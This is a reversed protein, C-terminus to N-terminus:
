VRTKSRTPLRPLRSQWKRRDPKTAPNGQEADSAMKGLQEALSLPNNQALAQQMKQANQAGAVSTKANAGAKSDAGPPPANLGVKGDKDNQKPTAQANALAQALDKGAGPLSKPVGTQAALSMQAQKMAATLKAVKMLAKQKTMSSKQLQKGLAAIQLAAKKAEPLNKKGAEKDLAKALRVLREGQAQVAKHEARTQASQFLPLTPLFWLLFAAAFVGLSAPVPRPLPRLSVVSKVDASAAATQADQKQRDAWDPNTWSAPSLYAAAATSLREQLGLRLDAYRLAALPTIRWAAGWAAGLFLGFAPALLFLLPSAEDPMAWLRLRLAAVALLSVGSGIGFGWGACLLVRRLRLRSAVTAAVRQLHLPLAGAPSAGASAPSPSPVTTKRAATTM